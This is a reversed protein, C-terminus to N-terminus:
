LALLRRRAPPQPALTRPLKLACPGRPTANPSPARHLETSSKGLQAKGKLNRVYFGTGLVWREVDVFGEMVKNSDNPSGAGGWWGGAWFPRQLLVPAPLQLSVREKNGPLPPPEPSNQIERGGDM